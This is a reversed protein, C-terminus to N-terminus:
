SPRGAARRYAAAHLAGIPAWDRARLDPLDSSRLDHTADLSRCLDQATLEGDFQHVWQAGVERALDANVPNHPVLVPRGISLVALAAGSNHMEPYPLVVLQSAQVESVFQDDPLFALSLSIREDAAHGRVDTELSPSSLRGCVRLSVDRSEPPISSFAKLLSTVGKYRRITGVFAIRGPQAVAAPSPRYWDRYHGHPIVVSRASDRVPTHANLTIWLRTQREALRLLWVERRSIDRPLDINHVTRVLATGRVRCRTLLALFLLQRVLKRVPTRGNVLIEPWHAHFVDYRGTLAERWSFNRAEVGPQTSLADALLMSYPNTTPRPKPFSLLVVLAAECGPTAATATASTAESHPVSRLSTQAPPTV